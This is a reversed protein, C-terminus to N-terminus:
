GKFRFGVDFVSYFDGDGFDGVAAGGDAGGVVAFLLYEQYVLGM